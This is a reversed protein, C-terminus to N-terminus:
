VMAGRVIHDAIGSLELINRNWPTLPSAIRRTKFVNECENANRSTHTVAEFAADAEYVRAAKVGAKLDRIVQKYLKNCVYLCKRETQNETEHILRLSHKRTSTVNKLLMIVVTPAMDVACSRSAQSDAMLTSFCLDYNPIDRCVDKVSDEGPGPQCHKEEECSVFLPSLQLLLLFWLALRRPLLSSM